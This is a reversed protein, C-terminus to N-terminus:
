SGPGGGTTDGPVHPRQGTSTEHRDRLWTALDRQAQGTRCPGPQRRMITLAHAPRVRRKCPQSAHAHDRLYRILGIVDDPVLRGIADSSYVSVVVQGAPDLLFGTSQLYVPQPKAFAGTAAAAARAAASHGIPFQLDDPLCRTGGGPPDATLAPFRDGPHLLTNSTM